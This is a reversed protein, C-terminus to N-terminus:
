SLSLFRTEEVSISFLQLENEIGTLFAPYLFSPCSRVSTVDLSAMNVLPGVSILLHLPM